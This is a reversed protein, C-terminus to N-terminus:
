SGPEPTANSAVARDPAASGWARFGVTPCGVSGKVGPCKSLEGSRRCDAAGGACSLSVTKHKWRMFPEGNQALIVIAIVIRLDTSIRITIIQKLAGEEPKPDEIAGAHCREFPWKAPEM